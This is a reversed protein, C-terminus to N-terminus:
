PAEPFGALGQGLVRYLTVRALLENYRQDLMNRRANNLSTQADLVSILEIDGERYRVEAIEFSRRAQALAERFFQDQQELANISGLSQDVESLATLLVGRYTAVQELWAARATTNEGRVQGGDFLLQSLSAALSYVADGDFLDSLSSSAYGAGGTLSLSPWYASRAVAVGYDAAMLNALARGVDPRQALVEAPLGPEIEPVTLEDLGGDSLLFGQPTDGVLVALAYRTERAQQRLDPLAARQNAVLTRQQALDQPSVAGYRVKAEVLELVREALALSDEALALRDELYRWQLWTNAVSALVTLRVSDRDFRSAELNAEAIAKNNRLRGWLDLEYSTNARLQFSDSSTGGFTGSTSAGGDLSLSPFLSSGAQQLRGEAQLVRAAAARLDTNDSLSRAVLQNLEDSGFGQWWAPNSVAARSDAIQNEWQAPAEPEPTELGSRVACGSMFVSCVLVVTWLPRKGSAAQLKFGPKSM